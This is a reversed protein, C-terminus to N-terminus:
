RGKWARYVDLLRERAEAEITDESLTGLARLTLRMQALYTRCGSCEALHTEFRIRESASMRDELYDTVLEVLEQCAMDDEAQRV